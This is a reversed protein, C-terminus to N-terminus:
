VMSHLIRPRQCHLMPIRRHPFARLPHELIWLETAPQQGRWAALQDRGVFHLPRPAPDPTDTFGQPLTM